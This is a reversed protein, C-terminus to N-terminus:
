SNSLGIAGDNRALPPGIARTPLLHRDPSADKANSDGCIGAASPGVGAASGTAILIWFDHDLRGAAPPMAQARASEAESSL